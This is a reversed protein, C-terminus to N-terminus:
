EMPQEQAALRSLAAQYEEPRNVRTFANAHPAPLLQVDSSRLARRPSYSGEATLAQLRAASRPEYIACLPEPMMGDALNRYATAMKTADRRTKLQRIVRPDVYLLDCALVLWAAEPQAQMASLIGGMPGIDAYRDHIQPLGRHGAAEAQDPRNSLFVRECHPELLAFAREAATRGGFALGAKDRGMRRSRGGGLVLGHLSPVGNM